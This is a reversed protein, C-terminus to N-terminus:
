RYFKEIFKNLDTLFNYNILYENKSTKISLSETESDFMLSYQLDDKAIGEIKITNQLAEFTKCQYEEKFYQTSCEKMEEDNLFIEFDFFNGDYQMCEKSGYKELDLTVGKIGLVYEGLWIIAGDPINNITM